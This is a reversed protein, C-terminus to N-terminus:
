THSGTSTCGWARGRRLEGAPALDLEMPIVALDVPLSCAAFRDLLEFLRTDDWGADDDRFFVPVPAPM